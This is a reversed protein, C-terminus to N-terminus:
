GELLDALARRDIKGHATAPLAAIGRIENPVMYGPLLRALGARVQKPSVEGAVFGVLGIPCGDLMPWAIVAVLDTGCVERMAGEIEGMEVRYGRLKIQNDIRGLHHFVGGTDRYAKDGTLYWRIGDIMVFRAATLEPAGFYGAALQAGAIALEGEEGDAVEERHGDLVAARVGRYPVGLALSDRAPTVVPPDTLRQHLCEITAETPGYVNDVVSGPAAAQWALAAKRTLTDGGFISVRLSPLCGARLVGRWVLLGIIAPTSNWATLEHRQIFSIPDAVEGAPVVHLAAGVNWTMFMNLISPDFTLDAALSIRDSSAFQYIEQIVALHELLGGLRIEVGKPQGTTGSTFIVYAIHEDGLVVPALGPDDALDSFKAIRPDTALHDGAVLIARPCVALVAASLGQAAPGDVILADLGITRLTRILREEPLSQGLPVYTAGAWCAGIVGAYAGASRGALVGVRLGGSGLGRLWGAIRRGSRAFEGYSIECGDVRLAPLQPSVAGFHHVGNALNGGM